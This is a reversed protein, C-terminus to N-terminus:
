FLPMRSRAAGRQGRTSEVGAVVIVRLEWAHGARGGPRAFAKEVGSRRGWGRGHGAAM